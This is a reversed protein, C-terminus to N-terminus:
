TTEEAKPPKHKPTNYLRMAPEIGDTIWCRAAKAAQQFAEFMLEREEKTNYHSLVWDVLDYQSPKAGVGVRIRAFDTTGLHEVVSRMGNHTGASGSKRIRVAGQELDIDDYIVVLDSPSLKYWDMLGRIAIGSNNMYTQPLALVVKEGGVLGEGILAQEKLKRVDISLDSALISLVDFGVNHRTHEYQKGYNGLGVILRM